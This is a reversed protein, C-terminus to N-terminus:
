RSAHRAARRLDPVGGIAGRDAARHRAVVPPGQARRDGPRVVRRLDSVGTTFAALVLLRRRLYGLVATALMFGVLLIDFGVYNPPLTVSLYASWPVLAVSGGIM